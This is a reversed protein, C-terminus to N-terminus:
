IFVTALAINKVRQWKALTKRQFVVIAGVGAKASNLGSDTQIKYDTRYNRKFCKERSWHAEDKLVM